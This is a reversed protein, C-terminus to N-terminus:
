RVDGEHNWIARIAELTREVTRTTRDIRIAIENNNYGELKCLAVARLVPDQLCELLRVCEDTMAAADEPTPESDPVQEIGDEADDQGGKGMWVSEGRVDGGGRKQRCEHRVLRAAKRVTIQALLAWLNDHDGPSVDGREARRCFTAFASLAVDEADAARQSHRGALRSHALRVLRAFYRAWLFEVAREDRDGLRGFCQTVSDGPTM